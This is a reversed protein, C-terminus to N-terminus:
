LPQEGVTQVRDYLAIICTSHTLPDFRAAADHRAARGIEFGLNPNRILNRIVVAFSASDATPVLFGTRGDRILEPAAGDANAVVPLGALMGEVVTRGFAEGRSPMVLADMAPLWAPVDARVGLWRVHEQIGLAAALNRLKKEYPQAGQGAVVLVTRFGDRVLSAVARIAVDVRKQRDLRGIVAVAFANDVGFESRWYERDVEDMNPRYTASEVPNYVVRTDVGAKHFRRALYASPAIVSNARRLCRRIRPHFWYRVQDRVHAIYPVGTRQAADFAVPISLDCNSHVVSYAGECIISQLWASERSIPRVAIGLWLAHRVVGEFFPLNQTLGGFPSGPQHGHEDYIHVAFGRSEFAETLPGPQWAALSPQWGLHPLANALELLSREAGGLYSITSVFLVRGRVKVSPTGVRGTNGRNNRTM